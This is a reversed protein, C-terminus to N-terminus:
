CWSTGTGEAAVSGQVWALPQTKVKTARKQERELPHQAAETSLRSHKIDAATM